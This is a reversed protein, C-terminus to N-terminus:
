ESKGYREGLMRIHRELEDDSFRPIIKDKSLYISYPPVDKTVIAGAAIISGTGIHVGKLIISHVGIWVDDEIVVDKDNDAKKECKEDVDIMYKGVLDSRHNGTIISTYAGIMAGNGITIKARTTLFQLRDSLIVNNGIFVNKSGRFIGPSHMTVHKGVSGFSKLQQDIERGQYWKVMSQIVSFAKDKILGLM